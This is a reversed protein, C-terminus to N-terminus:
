QPLLPPSRIHLFACAEAVSFSARASIRRRQMNSVRGAWRMLCCRWVVVRFILRGVRARHFHALSAYFDRVNLLAAASVRCSSAVWSHFRSISKARVIILFFSLSLSLSFFFFPFSSFVQRSERRARASEVARSPVGRTRTIINKCKGEDSAGHTDILQKSCAAPFLRGRKDSSRAACFSPFTSVRTGNPQARARERARAPSAPRKAPDVFYDSVNHTRITFRADHSTV